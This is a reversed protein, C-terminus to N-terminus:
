KGLNTAMQEQKTLWDEVVDTDKEEEFLQEETPLMDESISVPFGRNALNELRKPINTGWRVGLAISRSQRSM